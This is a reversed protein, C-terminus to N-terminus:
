EIDYDETGISIENNGAIRLLEENSLAEIHKININVNTTQEIKDKYKDQYVNKLSFILANTDPVYSKETVVKKIVNGEADTETKIEQGSFGEARKFLAQELMYKRNAVGKEFAEKFTPEENMLKYFTSRPIDLGKAIDTITAPTSALETVKDLNVADIAKFGGGNGKKKSTVANQKDPKQKKTASAM